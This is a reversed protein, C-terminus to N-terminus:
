TSISDGLLRFDKTEEENGFSQDIDELHEIHFSSILPVKTRVFVFDKCM